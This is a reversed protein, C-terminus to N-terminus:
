NLTFDTLKTICKSSVIGSSYQVLNLGASLGVHGDIDEHTAQPEGHSPVAFEWGDCDGCVQEIEMKLRLTAEAAEDERQRLIKLRLPVSKDARKNFM